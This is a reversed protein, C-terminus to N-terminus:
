ESTLAPGSADHLIAALFCCRCGRYDLRRAPSAFLLGWSHHGASSQVMLTILKYNLQFCAIVKNRLKRINKKKKKQKTKRLVHIGTANMRTLGTISHYAQKKKNSGKEIGQRAKDQM